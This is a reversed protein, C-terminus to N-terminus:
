RCRNNLHLVTRCDCVCARVCACGEPSVASRLSKNFSGKITARHDGCRYLRVFSLSVREGSRSLGQLWVGFVGQVTVCFFVRSDRGTHDLREWKSVGRREGWNCVHLWVCQLLVLTCAFDIVHCWAAEQIRFSSFFCGPLLFAQEHVVAANAEDRYICGKIGDKRAPHTLSHGHLLLVCGHTWMSHLVSYAMLCEILHLWEIVCFHSFFFGDKDYRTLLIFSRALKTCSGDGAWCLCSATCCTPHRLTQHPLRNLPHCEMVSLFYKCREFEWQNIFTQYIKILVALTSSCRHGICGMRRKRVWNNEERRRKGGVRQKGGWRGEGDGRHTHSNNM